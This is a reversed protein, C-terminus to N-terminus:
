NGGIETEWLLLVLKINSLDPSPCHLFHPFQGPAKPQALSLTVQTSLTSGPMKDRYHGFKPTPFGSSAGGRNQEDWSAQSEAPPQDQAPPVQKRLQSCGMCGHDVQWVHWFHLLEAPFFRGPIAPVFSVTRCFSTVSKPCSNAPDCKSVELDTFCGLSTIM